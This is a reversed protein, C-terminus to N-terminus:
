LDDFFGGGDDGAGGGAGGADSEGGSGFEFGGDGDLGVTDEGRSTREGALRDMERRKARRERRIEREEEAFEEDGEEEEQTKEKLTLAEQHAREIALKKRKKKEKREERRDKSAKQKSWAGLSSEEAGRMRKRHSTSSTTTTPLDEEGDVAAAPTVPAAADPNVGSDLPAAATRIKPFRPNSLKLVRAKEKAPDKYAWTAEDVKGDLWGESDGLLGDDGEAAAFSKSNKKLEGMKPLRVGGWSRAMQPLEADLDKKPFIYSAEHKGYARVFSM